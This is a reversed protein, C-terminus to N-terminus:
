VVSKRDIYAKAKEFDTFNEYRATPISYKKMFNKSFAKSAELMAGDKNPGYVSIGNARLLDALGLSLPVEPGCIVFNIEEEKCLNLIGELDEVAINVSKCDKSIGGNSPTCILNNLLPSAKVAKVLAHERGGQGVVLVNLKKNM